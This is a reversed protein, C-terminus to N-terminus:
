SGLCQIYDNDDDVSESDVFDCFADPNDVVCQANSELQGTCELETFEEPAATGLPDSCGEAIEFAEECPDDSGCAALGLVLVALTLGTAIRMAEGAGEAARSCRRQDLGEHSAEDGASGTLHKGARDVYLGAFTNLAFHTKKVGERTPVSQTSELPQGLVRLRAHTLRYEGRSDCCRSALRLEPM